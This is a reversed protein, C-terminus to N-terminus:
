EQTKVAASDLAFIGVSLNYFGDVEGGGGKTSGMIHPHKTNTDKRSKCDDQRPLSLTQQKLGKSWLFAKQPRQSVKYKFINHFISFKSKPAFAGYELIYM